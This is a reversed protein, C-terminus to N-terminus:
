LTCIVEGSAGMGTPESSLFDVLEPIDFTISVEDHANTKARATGSGSATEQGAITMWVTAEHDNLDAHHALTHETGDSWTSANMWVTASMSIDCPADSFETSADGWFSTSGEGCFGKLDGDDVVCRTGDSLALFGTSAANSGASHGSDGSDKYIGCAPICGLLLWPRLSGLM